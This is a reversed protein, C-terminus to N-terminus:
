GRRQPHPPKHGPKHKGPFPRRGSKVLLFIAWSLAFIAAALLILALTGWVDSGWLGIGRTYAQGAVAVRNM